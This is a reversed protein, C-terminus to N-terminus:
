PRFQPIQDGNTKYHLQRYERPTQNTMKKFLKNFYASDSYGVAESVEYIKLQPQDRLLDKAKEIRIGIVYDTITTGTEQRFLKSLYSPNLGVQESLETLEWERDFHRHLLQRAADVAHGPQRRREEAITSLCEDLLQLMRNCISDFMPRDALMAALSVHDGLAGRIQPRLGEVEGCALSLLEECWGLLQMYPLQVSAAEAFGKEMLEVAEAVALSTCARVFAGELGPHRYDRKMFRASNPSYELLEIDHSYGNSPYIAYGCAERADKLAQGLDTEVNQWKACGIAYYDQPAKPASRVAEMIKSHPTEDGYWVTLSGEYAGDTRVDAALAGLQELQAGLEKLERHGVGRAYLVIGGAQPLWGPPMLQDPMPGAEGGNMWEALWRIRERQLHLGREQKWESLKDLLDFLEQKNVPKLLYDVAGYRLAERAHDFESYGSLLVVRVGPYQRHLEQLLELGTMEPMRIDTIVADIGANEALAALLEPGGEFVGAVAAGGGRYQIMSALGKAIRVEDDVIAVKLM